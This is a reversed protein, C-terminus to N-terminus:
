PTGTRGGALSSVIALLEAPEVPKSLHNQFGSRIARTRDESRAYATLAIAPVMGVGNQSPDRLRQILSYGDEGPMGIDCVLVDPRRAAISEIAEGASAATSVKAGAHILLRKIFERADPEDDVVLVRVGTVSVVPLACTEPVRTNTPAPELIHQVPGAVLPLQVTFTAGRGQGESRASVKGGHLEVLQKVIALGLGLGGHRRTTSADAQQFRDFVYPL